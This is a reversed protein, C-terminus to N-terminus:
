HSGCATGVLQSPLEASIRKRGHIRPRIVALSNCGSKNAIGLSPAPWARPWTMNPRTAWGRMPEKGPICVIRALFAVATRSLPPKRGSVRRPVEFGIAGLVASWRPLSIWPPRVGLATAITEGLERFTVPRPGTIHYIAGSRGCRLCLLMGAV